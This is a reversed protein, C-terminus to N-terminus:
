FCVAATRVLEDPLDRIVLLVLLVVNVRSVRVEPIGRREGPAKSAPVEWSDKLDRKVPIERFDQLDVRDKDAQLDPRDPAARRERYVM